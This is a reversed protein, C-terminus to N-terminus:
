AHKVMRLVLRRVVDIALGLVFTLLAILLGALISPVHCDCLRDYGDRMLQYSIQNAHLVYVSFVSPALFIAFQGFKGFHIRKVLMFLAIALFASTLTNYGSLMGVSGASLLVLVPVLLLLNRRSLLRHTEIRTEYHRYLRGLIYMAILTLGSKATLEPTTPLVTNLWRMQALHGWVYVGVLLPLVSRKLMGWEDKDVWCHELVLDAFPAACMLLAYAHLFWFHQFSVAMKLLFEKADGLGYVALNTGSTVVLCFLAVGYLSWIKSWRFKIGFYGSVLVFGNVSALLPFLAFRNVAFNPMICIMHICVVGFMLFLRFVDVASNREVKM